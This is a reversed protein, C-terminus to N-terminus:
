WTVFKKFIIQNSVINDAGNVYYEACKPIIFEALNDFTFSMTKQARDISMYAHFGEVVYVRDAILLTDKYDCEYDDSVLADPDYTFKTENLQDPLYIHGRYGSVFGADKFRRNGLKYVIM